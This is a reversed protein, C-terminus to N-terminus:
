TVIIKPDLYLTAPSAAYRKAFHLRAYAWGEFGTTVTVSMKQHNNGGTGWTSGTDDTIATASTILRANAPDFNQDHQATDGADPTYFEVWVEDENFDTSATNNAIYVTLTNSGGALWVAMWPSKLSYNTSEVTHDIRPTMAYSFVGSAGDDAGGTRVATAENLITGYLTELAYEQYSTTAGKTSGSACGIMELASDSNVPTGSWRTYTAPMSCNVFKNKIVVGAGTQIPINGMGTLDVSTMEVNSAGARLLQDPAGTFTIVGGFMRLGAGATCNIDTTGIGNFELECDTYFHRCIEGNLLVDGVFSVECGIFDHTAEVNNSRWQSGSVFSIGNWQAHGAILNFSNSGTTQVIPLTDTGRIAIDNVDVGTGTNTTGDKVGIVIIPNGVTGASDLTYATAQSDAAAGQVFCIDGASMALVVTGLSQGAKAWTDYPATAGAGDFDAYFYAM